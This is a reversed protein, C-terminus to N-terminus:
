WARPALATPYVKSELDVVKGIVGHDKAIQM